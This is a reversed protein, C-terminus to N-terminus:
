GEGFKFIKAVLITLFFLVILPTALSVQSIFDPPTLLASMVIIGIIIFRSSKLLQKRTIVNTILLIELVIPVQFVVLTIFLFQVVYFINKSYNLLLGVQDPIFNKSTLFRVSIPVIKSYSYYFSFVILIFSVSLGIITIRKERRHLGPFIFCIANFLHVPFSIVLGTLISLKLKTVFGEFITNIFLQGQTRAAEIGEFPKFLAGIIFQFFLFAIISGILIGLASFLLRRRLEKLHGWLTMNKIKSTEAEMRVEKIRKLLLSYYAEVCYPSIM